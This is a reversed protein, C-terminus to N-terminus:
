RTKYGIYAAGLRTNHNILDRISTGAVLQDYWQQGKASFLAASTKGLNISEPQPLLWGGNENRGQLLYLTDGAAVAQAVTVNHNKQYIAAASLMAIDDSRQRNLILGVATDAYETCFNFDGQSDMAGLIPGRNHYLPRIIKDITLSKGVAQTQPHLDYDYANDYVGGVLKNTMAVVGDVGVLGFIEPQYAIAEIVDIYSASNIWVDIGNYDLAAYLEKLEPSITTGNKYSIPLPGALSVYGDSPLAMAVSKWQAPDKSLEFNYVHSDTALDNVQAPTMGTFLYTIWPYGVDASYSDNIAEYLWRIKSSFDKWEDTAQYIARTAADVGDISVYGADYLVKYANAADHAVTSVSLPVGTQTKWNPMPTEPNPVGTCLVEYMEDPHIAFRLHDVQYIILIEEVDLISTTNDFDFVAYPRTDHTYSPSAKGYLDFMENLRAKVTPDWGPSKLHQTQVRTKYGIYAAGLRTNHNILDRISTGAVLQDYWQQGKASFLAASTKGLNISEPQPLLWGGNENRGQLLYLTDGAAVAQAVTVNHNKQYIAAASLMAIDDSRQRNLILGVATDAYETCFNFDGQSDMAGLIPGRNHYLPRIIKDITLSKGVAQTQPHLDYDYANDYVGGVLKNTMAVVGDVGVLGFIEPQYAIAEIVDIYSASNIWVDIGNYDLAAYLEKLEPSITTGNKYSIPLPGALSVYGDSPLAMAVSKWQAPDKSLEFNYVHSDTALDNVQAPTMGTFLYTIWPYGVDASYSDNIAEYLWRIKSSFDKWEDTAQYIARTAADVGDISVYGADYLVKYANAADHAVTSVSLPVGTQTKWNPMPTEPNPVGTCLVEYMEDPHIAFRLHDVQYIILIEEVDLISTTNDFDFVAYPRDNENYTPSGKGYLDFMENLRAKVTPDWGPSQLYKPEFGKGGQVLPLAVRHQVLVSSVASLPVLSLLVAAVLLLTLLRKM